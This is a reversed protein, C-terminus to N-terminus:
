NLKENFLSKLYQGTYSKKIKSIKEPTGTAVIEGGGDGGEPGLDIVWDATKIVDLNHEIVVVTNGQAVLTQLVELLKKIDHVHLGTTPEDLIYLTKGTARKSLEKSLKIRQAEGGSLTTAQQGIKIYGLGVNKLTMLKSKLLPIADFFECGEDVTMELIDSINKDKYKIELTERNYRKGKCEDCTVYVDPLFHMEIKIVGDGECAECRGGKVNFSFRGPKYGRSKSEPLGSFWDRIFTFAGTYTAPNSRPTRGIPSQDIDIIKDLHKLGKIERYKSPNYKSGNLERAVAKYLTNITLTSKGSGSVGTICTLTGLPIDTSVNKLNNGSADVISLFKNDLAPRRLKPIEISQKRSLYQGTLSKKNKKVELPTGTAVINGGDLGAAPGLDILHDASMMAEEDHEVVIVTNGLDKLRKLTGLLRANDRQHLGISPEDLVYLVGTLGSGIQSALRIRQSEGGSLTGSNRSLTLYELGVNNLFNIRENLEKLIRYAIENEKKSLKKNLEKFWIVLEKISKDCVEGIHLKDIKVCLAEEKLRYGNCASCKVESQYREINGRMWDSETEIYRRELNRVVGEFTRKSTQVRYGDDYTFKIQEDNSGFLIVNQIKKPLKSWPSDLSFKYHKALSNCIQRFYPSNTLSWPAIAGNNITLQKNPIVLNPDVSLDTGIGDCEPCAGYPNNFSFLRPEIEDITFGSVPCAFKSSFTESTPVENKYTHDEVTALGESLNLATELSDALRNGLDDNLVIRDVIIDIEHKKKKDLNPLSDFDYQVGDIKVRQFGKRQLEALEKKYEGKRGRVIPALIILRSGKPKDKIRDVMQSVTQSTIPLGTSPSYPVGIRAFLLRLYDYIETVTGVTSRPNKSTTKQEIAIAPSLGEILDVDPKQMMELFQRAYASLSEVYRRQGEAYITDFALSSKGSGSLGTIITIKERPIKVNVNKLNHERAGQVSIYKNM